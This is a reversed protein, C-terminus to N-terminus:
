VHVFTFLLINGKQADENPNTNEEVGGVRMVVLAHTDAFFVLLHSQREDVDSDSHADESM